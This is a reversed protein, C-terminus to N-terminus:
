TGCSGVLLHLENGLIDLGALARLRCESGAITLVQGHACLFLSWAVFLFTQCKDAVRLVKLGGQFAEASRLRIILMSRSSKSHGLFRSDGIAAIQAAVV